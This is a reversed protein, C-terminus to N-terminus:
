KSKAEVEGVLYVESTSPNANSTITVVKRQMGTKNATDFVVKIAASAGPPIPERPYDPVTCGCTASANSIILPTKGTNTFKFDYAVKEGDTAKGFDYTDNEYKIVPANEASQEGDTTSVSSSDSQKAQEQNNNSCANLFFSVAAFGAIIVKRM